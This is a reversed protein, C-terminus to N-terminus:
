LHPGNLRKPFGSLLNANVKQARPGQKLASQDPEPFCIPQNVRKLNVFALPVGSSDLVTLIAERRGPIAVNSVWDVYEMWGHKERWEDLSVKEAFAGFLNTQEFTVGRHSTMWHSAAAIAHGVPLQDYDNITRGNSDRYLRRAVELDLLFAFRNLFDQFCVSKHSGAWM